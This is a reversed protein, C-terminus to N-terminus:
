YKTGREVPSIYAFKGRPSKGRFSLFIDLNLLVFPSDDDQTQTEWLRSMNPFKVHFDHPITLFHVLFHAGRATNNDRENLM